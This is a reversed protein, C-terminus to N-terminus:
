EKYVKAATGYFVADVYTQEVGLEALSERAIEFWDGAHAPIRASSSPSSGFIIREYGFAEMVPALYMKIRRKWENVQQTDNSEVPSSPFPTQPTPADWNPPLFKVYVNPFLSLTAVQSQFALYTPHNMLKVIPLDLDHPPPLINSLVIPPPNELGVSSKTILEELGDLLTDTLTGQIDIDIPRGLSLAWKLTDLAGPLSKAFVTSLAVPVTASSVAAEVQKDVQDLSFPVLISIIQPDRNADKLAADLEAAPLSLVVGHIRGDLVNGVERKWQAFQADRAVVNADIVQPPQLKSPSPHIPFSDGASSSPPTFASQPLKPLDKPLKRRLHPVASSM